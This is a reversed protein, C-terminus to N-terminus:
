SGQLKENIRKAAQSTMQILREQQHVARQSPAMLTLAGLMYQNKAFLPFSVGWVGPDVESDSYAYGKAQIAKLIKKIEVQTVANPYEAQLISDQQKIPLHALLCKATAGEKLPVSRGKEFSCRLSQPGEEMDICIAQKHVAVTIAVSERSQESLLTIDQKAYEMLLSTEDFGLALQLSVPGPAYLSNSEFVFGWRKLMTLQRYLSSKALGTQRMLEAASVPRGSQALATLVMLVREQINVDKADAEKLPANAVTMIFVTLFFVYYSLLLNQAVYHSQMGVVHSNIRKMHM